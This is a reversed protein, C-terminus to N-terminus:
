RLLVTRARAFAGTDSAVIKEGERLGSVIEVEGV